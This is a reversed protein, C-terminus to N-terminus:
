AVSEHVGDLMEPPIEVGDILPQAGPPIVSAVWDFQRGGGRTGRPRIGAVVRMLPM